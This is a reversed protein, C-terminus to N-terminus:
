VVTTVQPTCYAVTIATVITSLPLTWLLSSSDVTSVADVTTAEQPTYQVLLLLYQVLQLYQMLLVLVKYKILICLM